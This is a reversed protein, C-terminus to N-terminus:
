IGEESDKKGEFTIKGDNTQFIKLANFSLKQWRRDDNYRVTIYSNGDKGKELFKSITMITSSNMYSLSTFILIIRKNTKQGRMLMESLIPNIFKGPEREVSKGLWTVQIEQDTETIELTLLDSKYKKVENM